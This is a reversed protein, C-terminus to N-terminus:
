PSRKSDNLAADLAVFDAPSLREARTAADYGLDALAAVARAKITAGGDRGRYALALSGPLPKRRHGFADHVLDVFSPSPNSASRTLSILSSDVNPVPFFIKRSLRRSATQRAVAQVLVSTAGFLRGGPGAALRDAVERQTMACVLALEPLEQFAKIVATAAIGYPLNAVLKVPRPDLRAFDLDVADAFALTVNGRAGVADELAETLRRDIEIVHVHKVREALYESLVGLGGGIELVVDDPSLSAAEGIVDLMNNDILFNQGLKRKPTIGFRRLRDISAQSM